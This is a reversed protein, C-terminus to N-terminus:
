RFAPSVPYEVRIPEQRSGPQPTEPLRHNQKGATPGGGGGYKACLRSFLNTSPPSKNCLISELSKTRLTESHLPKCAGALRIRVEPAVPWFCIGEASGKQPPASSFCPFLLFLLSRPACGQRSLERNRNYRASRSFMCNTKCGCTGTDIPTTSNELPACAQCPKQPTWGFFSGQM